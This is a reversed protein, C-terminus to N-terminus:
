LTPISQQLSSVEEFSNLYPYLTMCMLFKLREASVKNLYGFLNDKHTQLLFIGSIGSMSTQCQSLFKSEFIGVVTITILPWGCGLLLWTMFVPIFVQFFTWELVSSPSFCNVSSTCISVKNQYTFYSRTIFCMTSTVFTLCIYLQGSCRLFCSSVPAFLQSKVTLPCSLHLQPYSWSQFSGHLVMRFRTVRRM